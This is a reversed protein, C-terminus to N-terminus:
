PTLKRPKPLGDEDVTGIVKGIRKAAGDYDYSPAPEIHQFRLRAAMFELERLSQQQVRLDPRTQTKATM